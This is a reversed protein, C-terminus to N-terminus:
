SKKGIADRVGYLGFAGCLTIIVDYPLEVSFVQALAILGLAVASWVTKSKYWEKDIM